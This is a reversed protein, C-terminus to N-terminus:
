NYRKTRDYWPNYHGSPFNVYDRPNVTKNVFTSYSWYDTLWLGAAISFHLHVGTSSGTTGMIALPTNKTVNEGARVRISGSKLHLYTSTFKQGNINHHIVIYNGRSADYSVTSVKGNAAAYVITGERNSNSLDMGDHYKRVGSIPHIRWGIESTVYGSELPRWFRTDPPLLKNACVKIDDNDKCGAKLYMDLVDRSLKIEEELSLDYEYLEAKASGLIEINKYLQQQKQRSQEEQQKLLVKKENSEVIMQNMEKIMNSNYDLLQQSVSVRYIFETMTQAGAIYDMYISDSSSIQIYSMLEKTEEDKNKINVNLEEIKKTTADMEAILNDIDKYLQAVDSRAKNIQAETYKIKSDVNKADDELKQLANKLDKITEAQVKFSPTFSFCLLMIIFILNCIKKYKM